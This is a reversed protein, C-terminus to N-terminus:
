YGCHFSIMVRLLFADHTHILSIILIILIFILTIHPDHPHVHPDHCHIDPGHPHIDFHTLILLIFTLVM